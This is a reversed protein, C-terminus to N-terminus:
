TARALIKDRVREYSCHVTMEADIGLPNFEKALIRPAPDSSGHMNLFKRLSAVTSSLQLQREILQASSVGESPM